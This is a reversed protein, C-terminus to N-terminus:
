LRRLIATQLYRTYSSHPKQLSGRDKLCRKRRHRQSFIEAALTAIREPEVTGRPDLWTHTWNIMGFYLM